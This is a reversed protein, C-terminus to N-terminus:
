PKLCGNDSGQLAEPNPNPQTRPQMSMYTAVNHEHLHRAVSEGDADVSVLEQDPCMM